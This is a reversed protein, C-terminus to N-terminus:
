KVFVKDPHWLNEEKQFRLVALFLGDASYARCQTRDDPKGGCGLPISHGKRVMKESEESLVAAEWDLIVEDIPYILRQWYGQHFAEEILPLPISDAIYFSENRLRILQKLHAGCGLVMGLDHAISRIYTGTSCDVEITVLPSHWDLLELRSIEVAKPKRAVEIGERALQYLRKGKYKAASYMPPAQEITGHFSDIAKRIQDKTISAPDSRATIKGSADYTDTTIGLEIVAHYTKTARSLFEIVRTGQGLGLVLVGSADPDLTGTHGVRKEGSLRRVLSVIQFSTKGPPKLINLIGDIGM